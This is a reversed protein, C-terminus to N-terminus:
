ENRTKRLMQFLHIVTEPNNLPQEPVFFNIIEFPQRLISSNAPFECLFKSFQYGIQFRCLDLSECPFLLTILFFLGTFHDLHLQIFSRIQNQQNPVFFYWSKFAALETRLYRIIQIWVDFLHIRAFDIRFIHIGTEFLIILKQFSIIRRFPFQLFRFLFQM